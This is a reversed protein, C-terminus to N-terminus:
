SWLFVVVRRWELEEWFDHIRLDSQEPSCDIRVQFDVCKANTVQGTMDHAFMINNTHFDGHNLVNFPSNVSRLDRKVLKLLNSNTKLFHLVQPHEEAYTPAASRVVKELRNHLFQCFEESQLISTTFVSETRVPDLLKADTEHIKVGLAHFKALLKLAVVCHGLDMQKHGEAMRYGCKSIDELILADRGDTGFFEPHLSENPLLTKYIPLVVEYMYIEKAYFQLEKLVKYYQIDYPVKIFFSKECKKGDKEYFITFRSAKSCYNKGKEVIGSEFVKDSVTVNQFDHLLRNEIERDIM